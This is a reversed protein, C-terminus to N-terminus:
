MRLRTGSAVGPVVIWLGCVVEDLTEGNLIVHM